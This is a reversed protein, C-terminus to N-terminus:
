GILYLTLYSVVVLGIVSCVSLVLFRVITDVKQELKEVQSPVTFIFRILPAIISSDLFRSMPIPKWLSQTKPSGYMAM